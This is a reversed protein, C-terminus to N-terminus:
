AGRLFDELESDFWDPMITRWAYEDDELDEFTIDGELALSIDGNQWVGRGCFAMGCESYTIDFTLEPHQKAMEAYIAEPPSWATLFRIEICEDDEMIYPNVANWKTGWESRNFNIHNLDTIKSCFQRILHESISNFGLIGSCLPTPMFTCFDLTETVESTDPDVCELFGAFSKDKKSHPIYDSHLGGEKWISELEAANRDFVSKDFNNWISTLVRVNAENLPENNELMKLLHAKHLEIVTPEVTESIIMALARRIASRVIHEEKRLRKRFNYRDEPSGYVKISNSCWNPM